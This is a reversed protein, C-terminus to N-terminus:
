VVLDALLLLPGNLAVEPALDAAVDVTAAPAAGDVPLWVKEPWGAATLTLKIVAVPILM